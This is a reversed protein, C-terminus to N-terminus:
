SARRGPAEEDARVFEHPRGLLLALFTAGIRVLGRAGVIRLRRIQGRLPWVVESWATRAGSEFGAMRTVDWVVELPVDGFADRFAAASRAGEEADLYGDFVATVVPNTDTPPTVKWSM